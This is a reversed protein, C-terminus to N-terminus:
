NNQFNSDKIKKTSNQLEVKSFPSTQQLQRKKKKSEILEKVAVVGGQVPKHQKVSTSPRLRSDNRGNDFLDYDPNSVLDLLHAAGQPEPKSDAKFKATPITFNIEIARM